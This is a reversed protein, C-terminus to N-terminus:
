LMIEVQAAQFNVFQSERTRRGRPNLSCTKITELMQATGNSGRVLAGAREILQAICKLLACRSLM